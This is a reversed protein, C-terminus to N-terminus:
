ADTALLVTLVQLQKRISVDPSATPCKFFFSQASTRLSSHRAGIGFKRNEQLVMNVTNPQPM